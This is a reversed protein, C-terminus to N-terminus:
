TRRIVIDGTYTRARVTVTEGTEPQDTAAMSNLIRGTMTNVDLWAATGERIGIELDGATVDLEVTGRVVENLQISGNTSTALVASGAHDVVVEGNTANVRLDGSITGIRTTGSLNKVVASGDIEGLYVEGTATTVEVRGEAREVVIRGRGTNLRLPGTRDLAVGGDYTKFRCEGLRGESTCGGVTVDADVSSGAPLEILLDFSESKRSFLGSRRPGRVSLRGAAYKVRVAAAARIDSDDHPNTPRVDVVTDTRESAVVTVNASIAEVLVSIPQPTEFKPM